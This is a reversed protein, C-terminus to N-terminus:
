ASRALTMARFLKVQGVAGADNTTQQQTIVYSHWGLTAPVDIYLDSRDFTVDGPAKSFALSYTALIPGTVNTRRVRWTFTDTFDGVQARLDIRWWFRITDTIAAIFIINSLTVVVTEAPYYKALSSSGTIIGGRTVALAMLGETGIGQGQYERIATVSSVGSEGGLRWVAQNSFSSRVFSELVNGSTNTIRARRILMLSEGAATNEMATAADDLTKGVWVGPLSIVRSYWQGAARSGIQTSPAAGIANQDNPVSQDTTALRLVRRVKFATGSAPNVTWASDVTLVKTTGNYATGLKSEETSTGERITVYMDKYFDTTASAGTDLTISTAAGAQATNSREVVALDIGGRTDVSASDFMIEYELRDGSAIVYSLGQVCERFTKATGGPFTAKHYYAFGSAEIGLSRDLDQNTIQTVAISHATSPSFGSKNGSLDVVKAWYYYTVGYTVNADHFLKAKKTEILTATGSNNTTNRYLEVAGWDSPATFTFDIEVVRAGSQRVAVATPASPATTDGPATYPDDSAGVVASAGGGGSFAQVAMEYSQGPVLDDVRSTGGGTSRQDAIQWPTQLNIRFLVNMYAGGSPMAPVNLVIFAHVAGDGSLYVGDTNKTPATPASPAASSVPTEATASAGTSKASENEQEDFATIWYFYLTGGTVSGDMFRSARAEAIKVASAPVDATHRYIGYETLDVETSDTWDLDIFGPEASATLGAPAAPATRDTRTTRGDSAPTPNAGDTPLIGAVYAYIAADWGRLTAHISATEKRVVAAEMTEGTYGLPAYTLTVLEGVALQRAEQTLEVEVEDQGYQERKKLYDITKDATTINRIYDHELIRDSGYAYLTRSVELREGTFPDRRFRLSYTKIAEAAPRRRRAGIRVLNREGVGSGDRIAIRATTAETDVTITWEGASNMGLRMGRVMLLERLVDEARRPSLWAADCFLSGVTDLAAEGTTFSAANVSQSLGYTTDSLLTKVARAFNREAALGTVDAYIAHFGASFNQQRITFRVSTLGAYRTTEVTYEGAGILHLTGNPGDRYLAAVTLSGRGILYDYQSVGTNDNVYPCRVKEVNGFIVPISKGVDVANATFTTVDVIGRPIEQNLVSVDPATAQIVIVGEGQEVVEIKGTFETLNSASTRDYKKVVLAQNRLDTSYLGDLLGDQNSLELSVRSVELIGLVTELTQSEVVPDTLLLGRYRVGSVVLDVGSFNAPTGAPAGTVEVLWTPTWVSARDPALLTVM